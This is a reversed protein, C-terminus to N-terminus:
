VLFLIIVDVSEIFLSCLLSRYCFVLKGIVGYIVNVWVFNLFFRFLLCNVFIEVRFKGIIMLGFWLFELIFIDFIIVFFVRCFVNFNVNWCLLFINILFYSFLGFNVIVISLLFIKGDICIWGDM